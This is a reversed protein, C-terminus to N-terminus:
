VGIGLGRQGNSWYDDIVRLPSHHLEEQLEEIVAADGDFEQAELRWRSTAKMRKNVEESPFGQVTLQDEFVLPELDAPEGAM